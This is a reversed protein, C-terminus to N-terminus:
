KNKSEILKKEAENIYKNLDTNAKWAMLNGHLIWEQRESMPNLACKLLNFLMEKDINSWSLNGGWIFAELDEEFFKFKAIYCDDWCAGIKLYAYKLPENVSEFLFEKDM